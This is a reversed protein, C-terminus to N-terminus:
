ITQSFLRLEKIALTIPIPKWYASWLGTRMQAEVEQWLQGFYDTQYLRHRLWTVDIMLKAAITQLDAGTPKTRRNQWILRLQHRNQLRQIIAGAAEVLQCKHAQNMAEWYRLQESFGVEVRGQMRTSTTVRVHPSKRIRTDTRLLANYLAEDELCPVNPLGGVRKYAMCTLALSAGFHQFHRPWPDFFLPDLYAEIRAILMRYTVDRLHNVRVPNGDPRTLIRGGVVECGGAIEARIQDIWHCDVITDADTSAIIGHPRGVRLLRQYAADMLLRRATGVNAKDPPLQITAIRLPFNPHQLQYSYAVSVSDDTCNNLLLLVEYERGSILAGNARCQNRLADFTHVLHDVENRAPIIVSIRLQSDPPYADFLTLQRSLAASLSAIMPLMSAPEGSRYPM